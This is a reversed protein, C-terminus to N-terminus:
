YATNSGMDFRHRITLSIREQRHVITGAPANCCSLGATEYEEITEHISHMCQSYADDEFVVLSGGGRLLLQREDFAGKQRPEFHLLVQGEGLSLTATRSFYAPGDTHPMIGQCPTYHNILIHNPPATEDFIGANM